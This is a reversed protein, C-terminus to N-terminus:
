EELSGQTATSKISTFKQNYLKHGEDGLTETVMELALRCLFWFTHTHTHVHM